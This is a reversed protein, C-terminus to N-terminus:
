DFSRASNLCGQAREFIERPYNLRRRTSRQEQANLGGAVLFLDDRVLSQGRGHAHTPGEPM